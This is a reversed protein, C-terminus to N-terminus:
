FSVYITDSDVEYKVDESVKSPNNKWLESTFCGTLFVYNVCHLQHFICTYFTNKDYDGGELLTSLFM